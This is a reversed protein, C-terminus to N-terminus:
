LSPNIILNISTPLNTITLWDNIISMSMWVAYMTCLCHHLGFLLMLIVIIGELLLLHTKLELRHWGFTLSQYLFDCTGFYQFNLLRLTLLLLRSLIVLFQMRRRFLRLLLKLYADPLLLHAGHRLGVASLIVRHGEARGDVGLWTSWPKEVLLLCLQMFCAFIVFYEAWGRLVGERGSAVVSKSTLAVGDDFLWAGKVHAVDSEKRFVLSSVLCLSLFLRQLWRLCVGPNSVWHLFFFDLSFYNLLVLSLFDLRSVM